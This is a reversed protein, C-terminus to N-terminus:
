FLSFEVIIELSTEECMCLGEHPIQSTQSRWLLRPSSFTSDSDGFPKTKSDSSHGGSKSDPSCGFSTGCLAELSSLGRFCSEAHKHSVLSSLLTSGAKYPNSAHESDNLHQLLLGSCSETVKPLELLQRTRASFRIRCNDCLGIVTSIWSTFEARGVIVFLFHFDLVPTRIHAAYVNLNLNGLVLMLNLLLRTM